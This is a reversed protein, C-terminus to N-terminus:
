DGAGALLDFPNSSRSNSLRLKSSGESSAMLKRKKSKKSNQPQRASKILPIADEYDACLTELCSLGGEERVLSVTKAFTRATPFDALSPLRSLLQSLKSLTATMAGTRHKSFELIQHLMRLSYYTAQTQALLHLFDWSCSDLKGRADQRLLELSLPYGKARDMTMVIDQYIALMAWVFEPKGDGVEIKSLLALLSNGLGDIETPAPVDVDLGSSVSQLRRMEFVAPINNGNDPNSLLIAYGLQRTPKSAEWASTRSPYDLLFPLYMELKSNSLEQSSSIDKSIPTVVNSTALSRLAIESVRPDLASAQNTDLTPAVEPSIYQGVFEKYEEESASAAEGRKSKEAAQELTLYPDRSIEFALHQLGTDPKISLRRCLDAPRYQPARLRQTETDADIDALFIVGSAEGLDYVLLDSDSTLVMGGHERAHSACFGDAEGPVLKILPVFEPSNRLADIVAPVLFPPVPPKLTGKKDAPWADPVLDVSADAAHHPNARPVGAQFAVQYKVLDRTLKILRQIREPRKSSPLYSDFYIASVSLGCKQIQSLWAIATKGLLEYSPQEFPSSKRTTRSCLGLVHYALAPGDLIVNTTEIVAREAYRELQRRLQPIGM